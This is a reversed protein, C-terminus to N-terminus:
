LKNSNIGRLEVLVVEPPNFIRPLNPYYSLGRSVILTTGNEHYEGGVYTPLWGEDPSYLGNIFLPVRVQGGHTHGSLVLDFNYQSYVPMPDPRHSLLINYTDTPLEPMDTFFQGYESARSYYPDDLGYITLQQGKIEMQVTENLLVTAGHDRFVQLFYEINGWHEHNGTVYLCPAIDRIGDLLLTTGEIPYYHDAMDGVLCILDPKMAKVRNILPSQDQGHTYSHLDALVAIRIPESNTLKDSTLRYTRSILGRYLSIACLALLIALVIALRRPWKRKKKTPMINDM